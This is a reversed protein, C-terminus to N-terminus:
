NHDNVKRKPQYFPSVCISSLEKNANVEKDIATKLM